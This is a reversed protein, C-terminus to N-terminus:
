PGLTFLMGTDRSRAGDVQVAVPYPTASVALIEAAANMPVEVATPTPAAWPDGPQPARVPIAADGVIVEVIRAQQRWLREGNVRLITSTNGAVPVVSTIRPCLLLLALNSPYRRMTTIVAGHGLGGGVGDAPHGAIVQVEVPGPQLRQEPPIPRPLPNDLDAPYQADPLIIRIRGDAPPSVRIPELTGFRVHLRDALTGEALITIEDGVRARIEGIPGNLAPTVYADLIEPQRRVTMLIRRTEVPQPRVRPQPTEIQVVTVEYVVSRRFNTASIASWVKTIDDLTAPHLVIRLREFEDELVPDLLPDGVAGAAPNVITLNDLRNGFDNFVRMADGLLTQANLDADPQTEMASHTTVLYRLNLSLPPHGYAAPHGSGPIEQNKLGANEILQMLYLNVRAGDIGDVTVDPPALSVSAPIVMRDLLLTRLTRSVAAIAAHTAM